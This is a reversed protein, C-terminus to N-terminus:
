KWFEWWRKSVAEPPKSMHDVSPPPPNVDVPERCKECNIASFVSYYSVEWPQSQKHGCYPCPPNDDWNRLRITKHM